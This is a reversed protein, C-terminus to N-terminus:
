EPQFGSVAVGGGGAIMIHSPPVEVWHDRVDDLPESLVLTANGSLAIDHGQADHIAAGSAYHLRAAEGNTAFRVAYIATGDTLAATLRFPESVGAAELIRLIQGVTLALAKEVNEELGNTLLLYFFAESDTTGQMCPFLAPDIAMVIQRRVREFDGISGNHMFLWRGHRFPHSNTRATPTGTSARVHAFFLHSRIQDSMSRLNADNWAPLIDRFQGPEPRSDYWGIGFGDGNTTSAGQLSHLSQNILSNDPKFILTSLYVAPGNYALWRCM